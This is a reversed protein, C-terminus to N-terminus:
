LTFFQESVSSFSTAKTEAPPFNKEPKTLMTGASGRSVLETRPGVSSSPVDFFGAFPMM